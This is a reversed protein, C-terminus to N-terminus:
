TKILRQHRVQSLGQWLLHKARITRTGVTACGNHVAICSLIMTQQNHRHRFEVILVVNQQRAEVSSDNLMSGLEIETQMLVVSVVETRASVFVDALKIRELHGCGDITHSADDQFALHHELVELVADDNAVSQHISM